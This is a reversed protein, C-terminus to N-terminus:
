SKRPFKFGTPDILIFDNTLIFQSHPLGKIPSLMYDGYILPVQVVKKPNGILQNKCEEHM